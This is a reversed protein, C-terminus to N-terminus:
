RDASKSIVKSGDVFGQLKTLLRKIYEVSDSLILYTM